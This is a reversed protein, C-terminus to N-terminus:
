VLYKDLHKIVTARSKRPHFSPSRILPLHGPLSYVGEAPLSSIESRTAFCLIISRIKSLLSYFSGTSTSLVTRYDRLLLFGARQVLNCTPFRISADVTRGITRIFHSHHASAAPLAAASDAPSSWATFVDFKGVAMASLFCVNLSLCSLPFLHFGRHYNNYYYYCFLFWLFFFVLFYLLWFYYYCDTVHFGNLFILDLCVSCALTYGTVISCVVFIFDSGSLVVCCFFSKIM